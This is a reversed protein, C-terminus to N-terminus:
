VDVPNNKLLIHFDIMIISQLVTLVFHFAAMYCM